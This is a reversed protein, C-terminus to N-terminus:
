LLSKNVNLKLIHVNIIYQCNLIIAIMEQARVSRSAKISYKICDKFYDM